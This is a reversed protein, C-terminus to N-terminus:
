RVAVPSHRTPLGAAWAQFAAVGATHVDAEVGVAAWAEHLDIGQGSEIGAMGVQGHDGLHFAHGVAFEEAGDEVAGGAADALGASGAGSPM